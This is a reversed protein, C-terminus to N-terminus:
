LDTDISVTVSFLAVSAFAKKIAPRQDVVVAIEDTVIKGAEPLM